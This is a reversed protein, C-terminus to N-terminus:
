ADTWDFKALARDLPLAYVGGTKLRYTRAAVVVEILADLEHPNLPIQEDHQRGSPELASLVDISIPRHQLDM